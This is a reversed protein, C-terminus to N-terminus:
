GGPCIPNASVSPLWPIPKKPFETADRIQQAHALPTLADVATVRAQTTAAVKRQAVDRAPVALVRIRAVMTPRAADRPAVAVRPLPALSRAPEVMRVAARQSTADRARKVSVLWVLRGGAKVEVKEQNVTTIATKKM